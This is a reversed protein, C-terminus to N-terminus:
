FGSLYPCSALAEPYDSAISGLSGLPDDTYPHAEIYVAAAAAGEGSGLVIAATIAVESEPSGFVIVGVTSVAAGGGVLIPSAGYLDAAVQGVSAICSEAAGRVSSGITSVLDCVSCDPTPHM